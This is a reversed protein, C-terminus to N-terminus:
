TGDCSEFGNSPIDGRVPQPLIGNNDVYNTPDDGLMEEQRKRRADKEIFDKVEEVDTEPEDVTLLTPPRM